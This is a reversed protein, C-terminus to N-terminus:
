NAAASFEELESRASPQRHRFPRQLSEFPALSSFACGAHSGVADLACGSEAARASSSPPATSRTPASLRLPPLHEHANVRTTVLTMIPASGEARATQVAADSLSLCVQLSTLAGGGAGGAM